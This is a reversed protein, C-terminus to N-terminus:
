SGLVLLRASAGTLPQPTVHGSGAGAAGPSGRSPSTGGHINKSNFTTVSSWNESNLILTAGNLAIGDAPPVTWSTGGGGLLYM